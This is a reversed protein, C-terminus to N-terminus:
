SHTYSSNWARPAGSQRAHRSPVASPRTYRDNVDVGYGGLQASSARLHRRPPSVQPQRSLRAAAAPPPAPITTGINKYYSDRAATAIARASASYPDGGDVRRSDRHTVPARIGSHQPRSQRPQRHQPQLQLQKHLVHHQDSQRKGGHAVASQRQVDAKPKTQQQQKKNDNGGKKENNALSAALVTENTHRHYSPPSSSVDSGKELDVEEAAEDEKTRQPREDDLRSKRNRWAKTDEPFGNPYDKESAFRPHHALRKFIYIAVLVVVIV